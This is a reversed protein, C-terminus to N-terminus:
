PFLVHSVDVHAATLKDIHILVYVPHFGNINWKVCFVLFNVLVLPFLRINLHNRKLPLLNPNQGM